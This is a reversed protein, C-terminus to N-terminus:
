GAKPKRGPKRTPRPAATAPPLAPLVELQLSTWASEWDAKRFVEGRKRDEKTTRRITTAALLLRGERALPVLLTGDAGTTLTSASGDATFLRVTQNGLPRGASLLTAPLTGGARLGSPDAAVVFELPLGLPEAASELAPAELTRKKPDVVRAFTKASKSYVERGPKKAEKRKTRDALAQTAGIEGLYADFEAPPVEAFAPKLQVALAALGAGAYTAELRTVTGDARAGTMPMPRGPGFRVFTRDVSAPEVAGESVPFRSGTALEVSGSDGPSLTPRSPTPRPAAKGGRAPVTRAAPAAPAPVVATLWTEHATAPLALGAFLALALLTRRM